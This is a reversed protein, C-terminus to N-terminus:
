AGTLRRYSKKAVKYLFPSRMLARVVPHQKVSAAVRSAYDRQQAYYAWRSRLLKFDSKQEIFSQLLQEVTKADYEGATVTISDQRMVVAGSFYAELESKTEADTIIGDAYRLIDVAVARKQRNSLVYTQQRFSRVESFSYFNKLCLRNFVITTPLDNVQVPSYGVHFLEDLDHLNVLRLEYKGADLQSATTGDIAVSIELEDPKHLQKAAQLTAELVQKAEDRDEPNQMNILVKVPKPAGAIVDAFHDVPDIYGGTYASVLEYYHPYRKVLKAENKEILIRRRESTFSRSELHYVFAWNSMVCSYGQQNIRMCFDNEEGYGLGYMEDFLGYREILERRILMCFGVAVPSVNYRPLDDKIKKYVSWAYDTERDPSNSRMRQPVSAITANSSRPCVCGHSDTLYLIDLMEELFGATVETDSNLLLVDNNTKDLESVARNCTKIFGLNHSNREYRFNKVGKTDRLINAEMLEVDPGCDNVFLVDHRPDLHLKLSEICLTLSEWDGYVPVVITVKKQQTM